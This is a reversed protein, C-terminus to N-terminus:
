AIPPRLPPALPAAPVQTAGLTAAQRAAPRAAGLTAPLDLVAVHAHVCHCVHPAAPDHAPAPAQEPQVVATTAAPRDGDCTDPLLPEFGAALLCLGTLLALLRRFGPHLMRSPHAGSGFSYLAPLGPMRYSTM